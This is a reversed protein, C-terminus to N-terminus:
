KANNVVHRGGKVLERMKDRTERIRMRSFLTQLRGALPRCRVLALNMVGGRVLQM